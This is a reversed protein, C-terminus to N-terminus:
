TKWDFLTDVLQTTHIKGHETWQVDSHVEVGVQIFDGPNRFNDCNQGETAIEENNSSDRCIPLITLLRQYQKLISYTNPVLSIDQFQNYFGNNDIWLTTAEDTFGDAAFDVSWKGDDKSFTPIATYDKNDEHALGANWRASLIGADVQLWNTDRIGRIIEVGERALNIAIIQQQSINSVIMTNIILAVTTVTSATIIGIAVIVELLGQGSSYSNSWQYAQKM